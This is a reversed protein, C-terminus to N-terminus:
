RGDSQEERLEASEKSILDNAADDSGLPLTITRVSLGYALSLVRFVALTDEYAKGGSGSYNTMGSCIFARKDVLGIEAFINFHGEREQACQWIILWEIEKGVTHYLLPYISDSSFGVFDVTMAETPQEDPMVSDFPHRSLMVPSEYGWDTLMYDPKKLGTAILSLARHYVNEIRRTM